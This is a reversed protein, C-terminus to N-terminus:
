MPKAIITQLSVQKSLGHWDWTVTVVVNKMIVQSGTADTTDTVTWTRSFAGNIPNGSDTHSGAALDGDTFPGRRLTEILDSALVVASTSTKNLENNKVALVTMSILGLLAVILIFLAVQVEVLTFGWKWWIKRDNERRAKLIRQEKRRTTGMTRM